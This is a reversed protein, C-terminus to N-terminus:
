AAEAKEKLYRDLLENIKVTYGDAQDFMQAADVPREESIAKEANARLAKRIGAMGIMEDEYDRSRKKGM